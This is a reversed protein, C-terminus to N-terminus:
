YALRFGIYNFYSSVFYKRSSNRCCDSPSAFSGSRAIPFSGEMYVPDTQAASSYSLSDYRDLCWEMVNGSMDYLGLENPLKTAVPQASSANESCWAVDGVANSGAYLFGKSLSGGRAAFEWQAETPLVFSRKFSVVETMTSDSYVVAANLRNLFAFVDAYSVDTVPLQANAPVEDAEMVASWLARTVETAGMYYQSLSVRHVPAESLSDANVDYNAKTSDKPQAGMNFSGAGVRIMSFSVNGLKYCVHADDSDVIFMRLTDANESLSSGRGGSGAGEEDPNCAGFVLCLVGIYFFFIFKMAM